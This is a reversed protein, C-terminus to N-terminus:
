LQNHLDDPDTVPLRCVFGECIYVTPQDNMMPRDNLLAPSGEPPPLPAATVVLNPHFTKRIEGVLAKTRIDSLEGIIAVQKVKAFAFDAASLWRGFATPYRDAQEAVQDLSREALARWGAKDSFAALKLLAETALANGSPTANDQL